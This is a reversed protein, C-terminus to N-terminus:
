TRRRETRDAETRIAGVVAWRQILETSILIDANFTNLVIHISRPLDARVTYGDPFSAVKSFIDTGPLLYNLLKVTTRPLDIPDLARTLLLLSYGGGEGVGEVTAPRQEFGQPDLETLIDTATRSALVLDGFRYLSAPSAGESGDFRFVPQDISALSLGAADRNPRFARPMREVPMGVWHMGIVSGVFRRFRATAPVDQVTRQLTIEENPRLQRFRRILDTDLGIAAEQDQAMM